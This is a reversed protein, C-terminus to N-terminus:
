DEGYECAFAEATLHREGGFPSCLQWILLDDGFRQAQDLRDLFTLARVFLAEDARLMEGAYDSGHERVLKESEAIRQSFHNVWAGWRRWQAPTRTILPSSRCLQLVARAVSGRGARGARASALAHASDYTVIGHIYTVSSM